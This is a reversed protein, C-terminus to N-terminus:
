LSFVVYKDFKLLKKLVTRVLSEQVNRDKHELFQLMITKLYVYDMVPDNKGAGSNKNEISTNNKKENFIAIKLQLKKNERQIKDHRQITEDLADRMELRQKEASKLAKESGDLANRLENMAARIDEVEKNLSGVSIELEYCKQKWQKEACEFKAKEDTVKKLHIEIDHLRSKAEDLERARHRSSILVEDEARDREKLAEDMKERLERIKTETRDDAEALLRRMLEGERSRELLLRQLESLEESFSESQAEAEKLQVAMEAVQDRMSGLLSQSNEFQSDRLELEQQLRLSEKNQSSVQEGLDHIQTNLKSAEERLKNVEYASKESAAAYQIKEAESKRLDCQAIRQYEEARLRAKSELTLNEHLTRIETQSDAVQKKFCALESRADKELSESRKLELTRSALEERVTKNDFNEARLKTLEPQIKQLTDKLDTLDKYRSIALQQAAALDTQLKNSKIKLEDYNKSLDQMDVKIKQTSELNIQTKILINELDDIKQILGRKEDLLEKIKEKAEVHEQGINLLSEQMNEIEERLDEETKKKKQFKDLEANQSNVELQLRKNEAELNIQNSSGSTPLHSTTRIPTCHSHGGKKKNKGKKKVSRTATDAKFTGDAKSASSLTEHTEATISKKLNETRAIDNIESKGILDLDANRLQKLTEMQMKLDEYRADSEQITVSSNKQILILKQECKAFNIGITSLKEEYEGKQTVLNLKLISTEKESAELSSRLAQIEERQADFIGQQSSSVSLSQRAENLDHNAKELSTSLDSCKNESLTLKEELNSVKSRLDEIQPIKENVILHLDSIDTNYQRLDEHSYSNERAESDTQQISPMESSSIPSSFNTIQTDETIKIDTTGLVLKLVAPEKFGLPEESISEEFRRKYDDRDSSVRKLEGMVIDSKLKLQNMYEVFADPDSVSSIPTYERLMKEFEEISIARAHAIRYSRM